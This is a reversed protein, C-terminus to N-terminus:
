DPQNQEMRDEIIQLADFITKGTATFSGSVGEKLPFAHVTFDFGRVAHGDVFRYLPGHHIGYDPHEEVFARLMHEVFDYQDSM